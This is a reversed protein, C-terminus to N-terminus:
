RWWLRWQAGHCDDVGGGSDDDEDDALRGEVVVDVIIVVDGRWHSPFQDPDRPWTPCTSSSIWILEALGMCPYGSCAWCVLDGELLVDSFGRFFHMQFVGLRVGLLVWNSAELIYQLVLGALRMMLMMDDYGIKAWKKKQAASPLLEPRRGRPRWM